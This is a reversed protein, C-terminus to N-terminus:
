KAGGEKQYAEFLKRVGSVMLQCRDSIDRAVLSLAFLETRDDKDIAVLRDMLHLALADARDIEDTLADYQAVRDAERDDAADLKDQARDARAKLARRQSLKALAAVDAASLKGIVQRKKTPSM